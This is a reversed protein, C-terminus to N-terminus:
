GGQRFLLKTDWFDGHVLQPLGLSWAAPVGLVEDLVQAAARV